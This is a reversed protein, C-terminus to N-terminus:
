MHLAARAMPHPQAPYKINLRLPTNVKSVAVRYSVRVSYWQWAHDMALFENHKMAVCSMTLNTMPM